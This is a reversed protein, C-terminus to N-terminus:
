TCVIFIRSLFSFPLVFQNTRKTIIHFVNYIPAAVNCWIHIHNYVNPILDLVNQM